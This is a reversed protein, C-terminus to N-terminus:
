HLAGSLFFLPAAGSGPPPFLSLLPAAGPGAPPAGRAGPFAPFATRPFYNGGRGGSEKLKKDASPPVRALHPARASTRLYGSNVEPTFRLPRRALMASTCHTWFLRATTTSPAPPFTMIGGAGGQKAKRSRRAAPIHPLRVGLKSVAVPCPLAGARLEPFGENAVFCIGIM